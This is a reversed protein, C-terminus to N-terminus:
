NDTTLNTTNEHKEQTQNGIKINGEILASCTGVGLCILFIAIGQGLYAWFATKDTKNESMNM